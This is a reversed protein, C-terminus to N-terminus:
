VLWGPGAASSACPMIITMGAGHFFGALSDGPRSKHLGTRQEELRDAEAKALFEANKSKENYHQIRGDGNKDEWAILGTKERRKM